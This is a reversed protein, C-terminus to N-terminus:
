FSRGFRVYGVPDPRAAGGDALPTESLPLAVGGRVVLGALFGVTLDVGLEAGVSYLPEPSSPAGRFGRRCEGPCWAAGADAFVDGWVRDLFLPVLGAGREVLALPFRYEATASFARNGYQTAEPYGRVPFTLTSGLQFDVGASVPAGTGSAGGANFGPSRSGSEAGATARLALAHRAFGGLPIGRFARARGVSRLYGAADEGEAAGRTYRHGELTASVAYGQEPSISFDFSRVTSRGVTLLAGLDPAEGTLRDRLEGAAEPEDWAYDRKEWEGGVSLWSYSRYRQRPFTLTAGFRRERELLATPVSRISDGVRVAVPAAREVSWQQSGALDLLPVGWGAFRYGAGAETRGGDSYVLASAAYTHRGVVDRGGVLAGLGTGLEESAAAYPTWAAPRLSRWPSYGRAPGGAARPTAATDAPVPAVGSRVPPAPRWSAPDYPIRAVHYGDSRYLSFAIWRGDPSVDPQFAGTLVSTVQLLRGAELDYAYLNAIGTRDSSFLVYRGDPSWAPAADVARDRTLERLVAGATDMVVVDYFGGRLWRSVAIRDGRPSWRPLAWNVDLSPEALARAAGTALDLVVPVNTGAASRVAVARRGDPSPHPELVRARETRREAGGDPGVVYVDSYVRYPDVYDLQALVLSDTGPLWAAPGLTTRPFRERDAGGPALVRTAPEARGTATGYALARGDPSWRPFSTFRGEETLVEPETLGARRLSDALPLYRARLGAEWESWARTFPVGFSRRAAADLRYPILSGGVARVFDGVRQPGYRVALHNVFLSGYVYSTSGGPWRAPNGSARDISFFRDELIATRLAMDHMTGRVRGAPTLRSEVYTALGETVWSPTTAEPFLLPSRGLVRRLPRWIGGAYDLHFTHTLEHTIVLQLWDDYFALTPEDVPPHAYIVVRNTPFPTAYGNAYDVNDSIVLEVKGSPARVLTAALQARAAEARDGARRALSDLGEEYHVRFHPTEFTRWRADPPLQACLPPAALALAALLGLVRPLLPM